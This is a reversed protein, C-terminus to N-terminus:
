GVLEIFVALGDRPERFLIVGIFGPVRGSEIQGKLEESYDASYDTACHFYYPGSSLVARREASTFYTDSMETFGSDGDLTQTKHVNARDQQLIEAFGSLRMGRSNYLDRETIDAIYHVMMRSRYRFDGSVVTINEASIDAVCGQAFVGTPMAALVLIAMSAKLKNM